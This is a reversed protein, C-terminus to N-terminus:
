DINSITLLPLIRRDGCKLPASCDTTDKSMTPVIKMRVILKMLMFQSYDM